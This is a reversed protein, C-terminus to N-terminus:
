SVITVIYDRVVIMLQFILVSWLEVEHVFSDVDLILTKATRAVVFPYFCDSIQEYDLDGM